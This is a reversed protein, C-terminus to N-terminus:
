YSNLEAWDEYINNTDARVTVTILYYYTSSDSTYKAVVYISTDKIGATDSIEVYVDTFTYTRNGYRSSYVSGNSNTLTVEDSFVLRVFYEDEVLDSITSAAGESTSYSTNDESITYSSLSGSFLSALVSEKFSKNFYKMFAEYGEVESEETISYTQDRTNWDRYYTVRVISNNLFNPKFNMPVVALIIVLLALVFAVSLGTVTAIKKTKKRRLMKETEIKAYLEDDTLVKEEIEQNTSTDQVKSEAVNDKDEKM